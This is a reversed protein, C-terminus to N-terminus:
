QNYKIKLRHTERVRELSAINLASILDEKNDFIKTTNWRNKGFSLEYIPDEETFQIGTVIGSIVRFGFIGSDIIGYRAGGFLKEIEKISM